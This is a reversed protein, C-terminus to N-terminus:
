VRGAPRMGPEPGASASVVGSSGAGARADLRSSLLQAPVPNAEAGASTDARDTGYCPRSATQSCTILPPRVGALRTSTPIRYRCALRVGYRACLALRAGPAGPETPAAATTGPCDCEPACREGPPGPVAFAARGPAPRSQCPCRLPPRAQRHGVLHRRRRGRGLQRVDSRPNGVNRVRFDYSGDTQDITATALGTGTCAGGAATGIFLSVNVGYQGDHKRSVLGRARVENNSWQARDITVTDTTTQPNLIDAEVITGGMTNAATDFYGGVDILM